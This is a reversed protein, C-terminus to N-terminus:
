TILSIEGNIIIHPLLKRTALMTIDKIEKAPTQLNYRSNHEKYGCKYLCSDNVTNIIGETTKQPDPNNFSLIVVEAAAHIVYQIKEINKEFLFKNALIKVIIIKDYITM